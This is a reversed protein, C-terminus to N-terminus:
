LNVKEAIDFLKLTTRWNRTTATCNLKKEVINNTFKSSGFGGPIYIYLEKGFWHLQDQPAVYKQFIEMNIHKPQEKFFVVALRKIDLQSTDFPFREVVEQWEALSRVIVPVEFGYHNRINKAIQAELITTAMKKSSFVINGSQIYTTLNSLGLSVLHARLDAMKILKQGSVNIGRLIAIYTQM